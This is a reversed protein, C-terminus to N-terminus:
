IPIIEGIKKKKENGIEQSYDGRSIQIGWWQKRDM